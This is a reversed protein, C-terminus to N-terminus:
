LRQWNEEISFVEENVKMRTDHKATCTNELRGAGHQISTRQPLVYWM